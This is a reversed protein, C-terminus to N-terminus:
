GTGSMEQYHDANWEHYTAICKVGVHAAGSTLTDTIYDQKIDSSMPVDIQIGMFTYPVVRRVSRPVFKKIYFSKFPRARSLHVTRTSGVCAKLAGKNTYRKLAEQFTTENWPHDEMSLDTTMNLDGFAEAQNVTSVPHSFDSNGFTPLKNTTLPVVDENTADKTLGLLAAVTTGTDDDAADLKEGFSFFIPRWNLTIHQLNDGSFVGSSTEKRDLAFSTINFKLFLNMKDIISMKQVLAGTETNYNTNHPNVEIASPLIDIDSSHRILILFASNQTDSTLSLGLAYIIRHKLPYLESKFGRPPIM